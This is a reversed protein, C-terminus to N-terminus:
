FMINALKSRGKKVAENSSGLKAFVDMLKNYAKKDQWNREIAVIDLLLPISEESRNKEILLEALAFYNDLNEPDEQVKKRLDAEVDDPQALAELRQIEEDVKFILAGFYSNEDMDKIQAETLPALTKRAAITDQNNM